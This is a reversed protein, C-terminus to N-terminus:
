VATNFVYWDGQSTQTRSHRLCAFHSLYKGTHVGTAYDCISLSDSFQVSFCWKEAELRSNELFDCYVFFEDTPTRISRPRAKATTACKSAPPFHEESVTKAWEEGIQKGTFQIRALRYSYVCLM